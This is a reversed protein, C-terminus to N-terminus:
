SSIYVSHLSKLMSALVVTELNDAIVSKYGRSFGGKKGHSAESFRHLDVHFALTGLM